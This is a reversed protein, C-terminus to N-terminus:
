RETLIQFDLKSLLPKVKGVFLTKPCRRGLVDFSFTRM